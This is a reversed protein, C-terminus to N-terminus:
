CVLISCISRHNKLRDVLDILKNLSRCLKNIVEATAATSRRLVGGSRIGCWTMDNRRAHSTARMQTSERRQRRHSSPACRQSPATSQPRFVSKHRAPQPQKRTLSLRPGGCPILPRPDKAFTGLRTPPEHATRRLFDGGRKGVM